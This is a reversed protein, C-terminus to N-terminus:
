LLGSRQLRGRLQPAERLLAALREREEETGRVDRVGLGGALAREGDTLRRRVHVIGRNGRERWEGLLPDGVGNLAREAMAWATAENVASSASAHWVPGGFGM